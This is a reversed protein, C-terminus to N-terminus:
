LQVTKLIYESADNVDLLAETVIEDTNINKGCYLLRQLYLLHNKLHILEGIVNDVDQKAEERTKMILYLM